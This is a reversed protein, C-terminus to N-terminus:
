RVHGPRGTNERTNTRNRVPAAYVIELEPRHGSTGHDSSRFNTAADMETTGDQVMFFDFTRTNKARRKVINTVDQAFTTGSPGPTTTAPSGKTSYDIGAVAGATSWNNGSSYINWTAEDEVWPKLTEGIIVPQATSGLNNVYLSLTGTIVRSGRPIESATWRLLCRATQTDGRDDYVAATITTTTENNTTAATDLIWTDEGAAAAPQSTFTPM